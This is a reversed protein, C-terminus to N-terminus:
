ASPCTHDTNGIKQGSAPPPIVVTTPMGLRLTDSPDCVMVRTEYVLETRTSTEVARPTFEAVPSIFGIWGAYRQGKPADISVWAPMGPRVRSLQPEEVYTRIWVPNMLALTMVPKTPGAMDGVQLLRDRVVGDAPARLIGDVLHDKAAALDAEDVKLQSAAAEIAEPRNGQLALALRQRAEALAAEAVLHNSVARDREEVSVARTPVLSEMRALRLKMDNDVAEASSVQARALAIEEPRPGNRLDTLAHRQRDVEAQARLVNDQLFRMDLRALEQGKKVHAGEDVLIAAIRYDEQFALQVERMDVNGYLTLDNNNAAKANVVHFHWIAYGALAAVIPIALFRLRKRAPM